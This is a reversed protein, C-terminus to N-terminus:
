FVIAPLNSWKWQQKKSNFTAIVVNDQLECKRSLTANADRDSVIKTGFVYIKRWCKYRTLMAENLALFIFV